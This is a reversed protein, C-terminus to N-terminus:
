ALIMQSQNYHLLYWAKSAALLAATRARKRSVTSMVGEEGQETVGDISFGMRGTSVAFGMLPKTYDREEFMEFAHGGKRGSLGSSSISQCRKKKQSGPVNRDNEVAVPLHIINEDNSISSLSSASSLTSKM